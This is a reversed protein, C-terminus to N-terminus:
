ALRKLLQADNNQPRNVRESVQWVLRSDDPYQKLCSYAADPDDSLWIGWDEKLLIAPERYRTNNIDHMLPSAPLTVITCSVIPEGGEPASEDWLGAFAFAPQDACGVFWPQKGYPTEQWEYFGLAPILCRRGIEWTRRYAPSSRIVEMRANTSSYTGPNGRAYFPILGWRMGTVQLEGDVRRIVPVAQGPSVNFSPKYAVRFWPMWNRSSIRWHHEIASVEPTVYRGCM